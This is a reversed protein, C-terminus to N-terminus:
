FRVVELRIAFRRGILTGRWFRMAPRALPYFRTRTEAGALLLLGFLALCVLLVIPNHM